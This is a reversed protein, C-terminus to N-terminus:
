WKVPFMPLYEYAYKQPFLLLKCEINSFTGAVSFDAFLLHLALHRHHALSSSFFLPVVPFLLKSKWYVNFSILNLCNQLQMIFWVVIENWEWPVLRLRQEFHISGIICRSCWKWKIQLSMYIAPGVHSFGASFHVFSVSALVFILM